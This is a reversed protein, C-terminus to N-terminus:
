LKEKVQNENELLKSFPKIGYYKLTKMHSVWQNEVRQHIFEFYDIMSSLPQPIPIMFLLHTASMLCFIRQPDVNPGFKKEYEEKSLVQSAIPTFVSSVVLKKNVVSIFVMSAQPPTGAKTPDFIDFLMSNTFGKRHYYRLGTSKIEGYRLYIIEDRQFIREMLLQYLRHVLGENAKVLIFKELYDLLVQCTYRSDFDNIHRKGLCPTEDLYFPSRYRVKERIVSNFHFLQSEFQKLNWLKRSDVQTVVLRTETSTQPAWPQYFCHGGLYEITKGYKDFVKDIAYPLRFKLSSHCPKMKLVWQEQLRLDNMIMDENEEQTLTHFDATRIDSIFYVPTHSWKKADEDTFIQHYLKIKDTGKIKFKSPDYL